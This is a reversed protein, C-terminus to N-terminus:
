PKANPDLDRCIRLSLVDQELLRNAEGKFWLGSLGASWPGLMLFGFLGEAVFGKVM